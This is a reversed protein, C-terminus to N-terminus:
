ECNFNVIIYKSNLFYKKKLKSYLTWPIPKKVEICYKGCLSPQKVKFNIVSISDTNIKNDKFTRWFKKDIQNLASTIKSFIMRHERSFGLNKNNNSNNMNIKILEKNNGIIYFLVNEEKADRTFFAWGQPLALNFIDLNFFSYNIKIPNDSISKILNSFLFIFLFINFFIYYFLKSRM